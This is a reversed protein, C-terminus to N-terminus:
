FTNPTLKRTLSLREMAPLKSITAHFRGHDSLGPTALTPNKSLKSSKLFDKFTERNDIQDIQDLCLRWLEQSLIGIKDNTNWNQLQETMQRHTRKFTLSYKESGNKFTPDARVMSEFRLKVQDALRIVERYEESNYFAVAESDNKEWTWSSDLDKHNRLYGRLALLKRKQDTIQTLARTIRPDMESVLGDIYGNLKTTSEVHADGM